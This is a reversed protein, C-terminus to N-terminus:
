AGSRTSLVVTSGWAGICRAERRWPRDKGVARTEWARDPLRLEVVANRASASVLRVREVFRPVELTDPNAITANSTGDSKFRRVRVGSAPDYFAMAIRANDAFVPASAARPPVQAFTREFAWDEAAIDFVHLSSETDGGGIAVIGDRVVPTGLLNRRPRVLFPEPATEPLLRSIM